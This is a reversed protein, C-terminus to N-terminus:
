HKIQSMYILLRFLLSLSFLNIIQPGVDGWGIAM